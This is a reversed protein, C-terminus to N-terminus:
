RSPDASGSNYYGFAGAISHTANLGDALYRTALPVAWRMDRLDVSRPDFGMENAVMAGTAPKIQLGGVEGDAGNRVNADGNSEVHFLTKTIQPDVNLARGWADFLDDFANNPM